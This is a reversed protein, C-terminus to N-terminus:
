SDGRARMVLLTAPLLLWWAAGAGGAPDLQCSNTPAAPPASPYLSRIGAIDDPQLQDIDSVQSNMIAVVSQGHADPHDLGLVHGFEHLLVRHIDYPGGFPVLLSGDYANWAAARSFFVPANLMAGSAIDVCNNTAAIIDGFGQGCFNNAFLVPNDGVPGTNVCAHDPGPPGCPDNVQQVVEVSFQFATGVANWKNAANISNEDFSLTGNLLVGGNGSVPVGGAALASRLIARDNAWHLCPGSGNVQLCAFGYASGAPLLLLLCVIARRMITIITPRGSM